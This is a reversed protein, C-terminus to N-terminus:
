VVECGAAILKDVAAASSEPAVGAIMRGLVRVQLGSKKADLSSALVCYDTALGVVDVSEVKLDSLLQPVTRGDLTAGEFLSYSPKGQGKEIHFDIAATNLNPHYEAGHTGSVCHVPWSNVFDPDSGERAFHGGNDNDADHWDRSAIVFDYDSGNTELHKTIEAAVHAGGAVALSGGECFDNQVDVIFLAKTM